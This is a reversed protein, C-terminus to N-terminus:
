LGESKKKFVLEIIQDAKQSLFNAVAQNNEKLALKAIAEITDQASKQTLTKADFSKPSLIKYYAEAFSQLTKPELSDDNSDKLVKEFAGILKKLFLDKKKGLDSLDRQNEVKLSHWDIGNELDKKRHYHINSPSMDFALCIDGITNGQIYAARIEERINSSKPKKEKNIM